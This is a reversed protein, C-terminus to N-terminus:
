VEKFLVPLFQQFEAAACWPLQFPPRGSVAVLLLWAINQFVSFLAAM